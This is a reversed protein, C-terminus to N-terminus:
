VMQCYLRYHLFALLLLHLHEDIAPAVLLMSQYQPCHLNCHPFFITVLFRISHFTFHYITMPPSLYLPTLSETSLDFSIICYLISHDVVIHHLISYVIHYSIANYLIQCCVITCYYLISHLITDYLVMKCLITYQQVM